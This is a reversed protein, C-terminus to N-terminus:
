NLDDIFKLFREPTLEITSNLRFLCRNLTGYRDICVSQMFSSNIADIGVQADEIGLCEWPKVKLLKAARIFIDPKPKKNEVLDPDVVADIYEDLGIRKIVLSSSKSISAVATKYGENKLWKLFDLMGPLADEITIEDLFKNYFQNKKELIKEYEDKPIKKDFLELLKDLTDKRTLGKIEKQISEDINIGILKAAKKWAIFHYINTEALVGDFDFIVAKIKSREKLIM